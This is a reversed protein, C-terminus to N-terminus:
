RNDLYLQRHSFTHIREDKLTTKVEIRKSMKAFDFKSKPDQHWAEFFKIFNGTEFMMFLEGWFGQRELVPYKLSSIKFLEALDTFFNLLQKANDTISNFQKAAVLSLTIFKQYMLSDTSHCHLIYCNTYELAIKDINLTCKKVTRLSLLNTKYAVMSPIRKSLLILAYENNSNKGIYLPITNHIKKSIYGVNSHTVSLDAVIKKPDFM